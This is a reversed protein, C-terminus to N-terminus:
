SFLKKIFGVVGKEKKHGERGGSLKEFNARPLELNEDKSKSRSKPRSSSRKGGRSSSSKGRGGGGSGGRGRGRGRESGGSKKASGSGSKKGGSKKRSKKEAVEEPLPLEKIHVSLAENHKAFVERDMKSILSLYMAAGSKEAYEKRDRFEDLENPVDYNIISSAKIPEMEKAPLEGILLFDKEGKEYAALREEYKEKELGPHISVVNWDKKRIIKYLRDTTRRSAAFLIVRKAGSEELYAMLTSIKLRPPVPISAHSMNKSPEPDAHKAEPEKEASKAETKKKDASAAEDTTKKEDGSSDKEFGILEPNELMKLSLERTVKNYDASFILVQPKSSLKEFMAAIKKSMGFQYMEHAEEVIIMSLADLNIQNKNLIEDLRGPNAVVIPAGDQLAKAQENVDGEMSLSVSGIQAHYGIAWILEDLKQARDPSPTLILVRIGKHQGNTALKQIAPILVAAHEGAFDSNKVLLNKGDIAPPIVADLLPNTKDIQADELGSM